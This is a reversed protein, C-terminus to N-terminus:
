ANKKRHIRELELVIMSMKGNKLISHHEIGWLHMDITRFEKHVPVSIIIKGDQRCVRELEALGKAMSDIHELVEGCIVTDFSNDGFPLKNVDAFVADIGSDKMRELRIKSVETATVDYGRSKLVKVCYGDGAGVELVKKGKVADMMTYIRDWQHPESKYHGETLSLDIAFKENVDNFDIQEVNEPIKTLEKMGELKEVGKIVMSDTIAQMCKPPLPYKEPCERWWTDIRWWCGKCEIDSSINVNCDYGFFSVPTPGFLVISRTRVARAVHVLGGETDLHFKARSILAACENISTRGLMNIAGEISDEFKAGLQIVKYGKSNLYKIVEKWGDKRWCKTQRAIDSGNHMTVYKENELLKVMGFDKPFLKIFLDDDNGELNSTYLSLERENKGLTEIASNSSPFKDFMKKHLAFIKDTKEKDPKFFGIDKYTVQTIYRNDYVVDYGKKYITKVYDVWVVNLCMVVKDVAPNDKIIEYGIKDRVYLTTQCDKWKRKVATALASLALADGMGGIRILAINLGNKKEFFSPLAVDKDLCEAIKKESVLYHAVQNTVEYEKGAEFLLGMWSYVGHKKILRIKPM